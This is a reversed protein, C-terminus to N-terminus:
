PAFLQVIHYYRRLRPCVIFQSTSNPLYICTYVQWVAHTEPYLHFQAAEACGYRFSHSVKSVPPTASAGAHSCKPMFCLKYRRPMENQCQCFKILTEECESKINESLWSFPPCGAAAQACSSMEQCRYVRLFKRNLIDKEINCKRFFHSNLPLICCVLSTM